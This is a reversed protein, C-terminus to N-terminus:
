KETIKLGQANTWGWEWSDFRRGGVRYDVREVSQALMAATSGTGSGSGTLTMLM